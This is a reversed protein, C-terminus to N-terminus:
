LPPLGNLYPAIYKQGREIYYPTFLPEFEARVRQMSDHLRQRGYVLFQATSYAYYEQKAGAVNKKFADQYLDRGEEILAEIVPTFEISQGNPFDIRKEKIFGIVQKMCERTQEVSLCQEDQRRFAWQTCGNTVELIRLVALNDLETADIKQLAELHNKIQSQFGEFDAEFYEQLEGIQALENWNIHM